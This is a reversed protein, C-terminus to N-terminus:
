HPYEDWISPCPYLSCVLGDRMRLTSIRHHSVSTLSPISVGLPSVGFAQQLTRRPGAPSALRVRAEAMDLFTEQTEPWCRLHELHPLLKGAAISRLAEDDLLSHADDVHRASPIAELFERFGSEIRTHGQSQLSQLWFSSLQAGSCVIMNRIAPPYFPVHTSQIHLEKLSPVVLSEFLWTDSVHTLSLKCLRPLRLDGVPTMVGKEPARSYLQTLNVSQKLIVSLMHSGLNEASLLNLYSLNEWVGSQQFAVPLHHYVRLSQLRPLYLPEEACGPIEPLFRVDLQELRHCDRLISFVAQTDLEKVGGINLSTFKGLPLDLPSLPFGGGSEVKLQHFMTAHKFSGGAPGGCLMKDSRAGDIVNFNATQLAAFDLPSIAQFLEHYGAIGMRLNLDQIRCLYPILATPLLAPPGCYTVSLKAVAPLLECARSLHPSPRDYISIKTPRWLRSDARTIARWGACVQGLVWPADSVKPPISFTCATTTPLCHLFIESLLEPALRKHPALAIHYKRVREEQADRVASLAALADNLESLMREADLLFSRAIQIEPEFLINYNVAAAATELKEVLLQERSTM